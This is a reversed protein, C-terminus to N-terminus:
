LPTDKDLCLSWIYALRSHNDFYIPPLLARGPRHHGPLGVVASIAPTTGQAEEQTAKRKVHPALRQLPPLSVTAAQGAPTAAHLFKCSQRRQAHGSLSGQVQKGWPLLGHRDEQVLPHSACGRRGAQNAEKTVEFTSVEEPPHSATKINYFMISM